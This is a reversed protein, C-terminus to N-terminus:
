LTGSIGSCVLSSTTEPTMPGTTAHAGSRSSAQSQRAVSTQKLPQPETSNEEVMIMPLAIMTVQGSISPTTRLTAAIADDPASPDTTAPSCASILLAGFLLATMSCTRITTM